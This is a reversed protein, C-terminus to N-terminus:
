AFHKKRVAFWRSQINNIFGSVLRQQRNDTVRVVSLIILTNGLIKHSYFYGPRGFEFETRSFAKSSM